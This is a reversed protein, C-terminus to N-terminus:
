TLPLTRPAIRAHLLRPSPLATSSIRAAHAAAVRVHPLLHFLRPASPTCTHANRARLPVVRCARLFFQHPPAFFPSHRACLRTFHPTHSLATRTRPATRAHAHLHLFLRLIRTHTRLTRHSFRCPPLAPPSIESRPGTLPLLSMDTSSDLLPLLTCCAAASRHLRPTHLRPYISAPSPPLLRARLCINLRCAAPPIHPLSDGLAM